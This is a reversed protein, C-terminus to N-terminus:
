PRQKTDQKEAMIAALPAEESTRKCRGQIGTLMLPQWSRALLQNPSVAYWMRSVSMCQTYSSLISEAAMWFLACTCVVSLLHNM